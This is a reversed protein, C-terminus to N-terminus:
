KQGFNGPSKQRFHRFRSNKRRSPRWFKWYIKGLRPPVIPPRLYVPSYAESRARLVRGFIKQRFKKWSSPPGIPVPASRIGGAPLPARCDDPLQVPLGPASRPVPAAHDRGAPPGSFDPANRWANETPTETPRETPSRGCRCALLCSALALFFCRPCALPLVVPPRPRHVPM